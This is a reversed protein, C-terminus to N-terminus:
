SIIITESFNMINWLRQNSFPFGSLQIREGDVLINGNALNQIGKETQRACKSNSSPLKWHDYYMGLVYRTEDKFFFWKILEFTSIVSFLLSPLTNLRIFAFIPEFASLFGNEFDGIYLEIKEISM